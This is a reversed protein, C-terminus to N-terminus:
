LPARAISKTVLARQLCPPGDGYRMVARHLSVAVEAYSVTAADKRHMCISFPGRRPSHSRHLKRLASSAGLLRKTETACVEARVREAEAEDFGSSFWHAIQWGHDVRRMRELDWQWEIVKRAQCDAGLLRFPRLKRRPLQNLRAAVEPLSGSDALSDVVIGRSVLEGAPLRDITHWNILALCLGIENVAIWTGGDPERPLIVRRGAIRVISPPLGAVRSRQEDRNMALRFGNATPVFSVTCM